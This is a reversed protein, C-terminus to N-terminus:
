LALAALATGKNEMLLANVGKTALVTQLGRVILQLHVPEGQLVPCPTDVGVQEELSLSVLRDYEVGSNVHHAAGILAAPGEVRHLQQVQTGRLCLSLPHLLGPNPALPDGMPSYREIGVDVIHHTCLSDKTFGTRIICLHPIEDCMM